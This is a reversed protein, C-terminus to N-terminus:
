SPFSQFAAAATKAGVEKIELFGKEPKKRCEDEEQDDEQRSGEGEVGEVVGLPQAKALRKVDGVTEDEHLVHEGEGFVPQQLQKVQQKRGDSEHHDQVSDDLEAVVEHAPILTSLFPDL